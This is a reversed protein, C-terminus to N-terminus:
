FPLTCRDFVWLTEGVLMDEGRRQYYDHSGLGTIFAYTPAPQELDFFYPNANLLTDDFFNLTLNPVQVPARDRDLVTLFLTGYGSAQTLDLHYLSEDNLRIHLTAKSSAQQPIGEQWMLEFGQNGVDRYISAHLPCSALAPATSVLLLSVSLLLTKPSLKSPPM